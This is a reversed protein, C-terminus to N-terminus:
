FLYLPLLVISEMVKMDLIVLALIHDLLTVALPMLMAIMLETWVNMSTEAHPAPVKIVMMVLAFLAETLTRVYLM